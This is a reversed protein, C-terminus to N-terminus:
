LAAAADVYVQTLAAVLTDMEGSVTDGIENAVNADFFEKTRQPTMLSAAHTGGEAQEKTAAPYNPVKDLSEALDNVSQAVTEIQQELDSTDYDPLQTDPVKGTADLTAVGNAEGKKINLNITVDATGDFNAEGTGEGSIAIKRSTALKAASGSTNSDIENPIDAKVLSGGETVRGRDDVTVKTYQGAEVGSIPLDDVDLDGGDVVLGKANVTVKAYTGEQTEVFIDDPLQTSPIKGANNLSAVGNAEGIRNTAVYNSGLDDIAQKYAQTFDHTSLGKGTVKDVKNDIGAIADMYEQTFDNSSLGKGPVKDVKDGISAVAQKDQNTYDNTSLGKGAVQNVKNGITDVAVKDEDTYDNSSLGKGAVKDVKSALGSNINSLADQAQAAAQQAAVVAADVEAMRAQEIGKWSFRPTGGRDTYQLELGNILLDLFKINIDRTATDTAGLPPNFVPDAM